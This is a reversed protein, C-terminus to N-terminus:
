RLIRNKNVAPEPGVSNMLNPPATPLPKARFESIRLDERSNSVSNVITAGLGGKQSGQGLTGNKLSVKNPSM